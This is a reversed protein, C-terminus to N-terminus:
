FPIDDEELPADSRAAPTGAAPIPAAPTQGPPTRYGSPQPPDSRDTSDKSKVFSFTEIVVKIRSRPQHTQKDEWNEQSVRGEVLLPDGKRTWKSLAEATRGWAELPMFCVDEKKEGSETEWTRNMAINTKGVATGKPTYRQEWDATLHGLLIIKNFSSPM